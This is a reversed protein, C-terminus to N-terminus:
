KLALNLARGLAAGWSQERDYFQESEAACSARISEYYNNDSALRKIAAVMALRDGCNLTIVSGPFVDIANCVTTAVVPRGSLVGEVM